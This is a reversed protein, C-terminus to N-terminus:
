HDKDNDPRLEITYVQGDRVVQISHLMYRNQKFVTAFEEVTDTKTNNLGTVTDGQRLRNNHTQLKWPSLDSVIVRETEANLDLRIGYLKYLTSLIADVKQYENKERMTISFYKTADNRRVTLTLRSGIEKNKVAKLLMSRSSVHKGDIRVIKDGTLLGIRAAPSNKLVSVVTVSKHVSGTEKVLIGIWGRRVRGYRVLDNYAKLVIESPISFSIGQYGGSVTRIATNIGIMEGKLNILPGGSNGPNIPVDTQIFDEIDTFGVDSRNVSSVIGSTISNSLGYPNGVAIVWEGESVSDSSGITIPTLTTQKDCKLRMVALDTEPDELYYKGNTFRYFSCTSGDYLTAQYTQAGSVVHLNTVIFGKESFITGTGYGTRLLTGSENTYTAIFIVSPKVSGASSIFLSNLQQNDAASLITCLFLIAPLILRRM